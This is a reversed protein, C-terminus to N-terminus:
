VVNFLYIEFVYLSRCYKCKLSKHVPSDKFPTIGGKMALDWPEYFGDMLRKIIEFGTSKKQKRKKSLSSLISHLWLSSVAISAGPALVSYGEEPSEDNKLEYQLYFYIFLLNFSTVTNVLSLHARIQCLLRSSKISFMKQLFMSKYLVSKM